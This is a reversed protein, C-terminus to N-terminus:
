LQKRVLRGDPTLSLLAPTEPMVNLNRIGFGHARKDLDRYLRGCAYPKWSSAGNLSTLAFREAKQRGHQSARILIFGDDDPLALGAQVNASHGLHVVRDSEGDARVLYIYNRLGCAIFRPYSHFPILHTEKAGATLDYRQAFM